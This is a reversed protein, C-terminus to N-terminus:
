LRFGLGGLVTARPEPEVLSVHFDGTAVIGTSGVQALSLTVRTSVGYSWAYWCGSAQDVNLDCGATIDITPGAAVAFVEHPSIELMAGHWSAVDITHGGGRAWGGGLITGQYFVSVYEHYRVGLQLTFAGIAGDGRELLGGGSLGLEFRVTSDWISRCPLGEPRRRSALGGDLTSRGWWARDGCPPVGAESELAEVWAPTPLTPRSTSPDITATFPSLTDQAVGISPGLTTGLAFTLSLVLRTHM